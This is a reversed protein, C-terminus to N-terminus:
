ESLLKKEFRRMVRYESDKEHDHGLLHAIGHALLDYLHEQHPKGLEDAKTYTYPASIILDGLNKDEEHVVVIGQGPKLNPHYSFSLIDTAKDKHRFDRNYRRITADTTIWIGLDFDSYGAKELMKQARARLAPVNISVKRQTNRIVIM